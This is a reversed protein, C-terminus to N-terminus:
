AWGDNYQIRLTSDTSGGTLTVVVSNNGPELRLWDDVKHNATLSFGSYADVGVKKVSRAGCDIVLQQGTTLTGDWQIESVGSVAIKVQTIAVAGATLTLIANAVRVNGGNNVM